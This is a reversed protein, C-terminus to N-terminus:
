APSDVPEDQADGRPRGDLALATDPRVWLLLCLLILGLDRLIEQLYRTQGPEVTGGGGFCGCDITLGRAWASAIGIVFAVLLVASLAAAPRVFVGLILLGGVALELWPLVHGITTALDPPFIEYARVAAGASYPNFAKLWGAVIWVGGITLRAALGLWPTLRHDLLRV